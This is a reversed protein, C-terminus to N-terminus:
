RTPIGLEDMKRYLSSLSIALEEAAAEKNGDKSSLVDMIYRKEFEKVADRLSKRGRPLTLTGAGGHPRVYDPLHELQIIEDDCFIVAREIINELERVEGKWTHHLLAQMAENSFGKIGRGMQKRYNNLFHQALPPIDEHREALSPLHVEVVNLRYFLDERFKGIEVEHRLDRNTAAIFRVDIKMVDTMGVPTIERQEIARLLKVQLHHPIESVEDLFVTGGDAIKLLGDKDATAGTFSGKKHGFLESEFLTDVIAGCNITVFRRNRRLGNAFIARAVLEKGTGSKGTILVTGESAAVRQIVQYVKKMSPSQGIIQDFDYSRNLEKRLLTIEHALARHDLLKRIRHLMDDFDIPKLVYDYAGRRLATVASELSGFATIIIVFTEPTHKAVHELLDIGRMEPMEIDTIVLDYPRADQMTLAEGGNAAEDVEFGEKKLVFSLSERIIQEDDVVLIRQAM